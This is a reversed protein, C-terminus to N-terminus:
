MPKLKIPVSRSSDFLLFMFRDISSFVSVLFVHGKHQTLLRELTARRCKPTRSDDAWAEKTWLLAHYSGLKGSCHLAPSESLFNFDLEIIQFLTTGLTMLETTWTGRDCM